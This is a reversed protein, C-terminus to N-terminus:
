LNAAPFREEFKAAMELATARYQGFEAHLAGFLGLAVPQCETADCWGLVRWLRRLAAVADAARNKKPSKQFRGVVRAVAARRMLGLATAVHHLVKFENLTGAFARFEIAGNAGAFAKRLNVMGRGCDEALISAQTASGARCMKALNGAVGDALQHAYHNLHRDTGTQAYIAWANQKAFHVLKRVFAAVQPTEATGIVSPVGVTVHLGCSANVKAGIARAFRVFERLAQIGAEGHLIPSVFECPAFGSEVQISGDREAKWYHGGFVPATVRSGDLATAHVVARGSHYSGITLGATAPVMTEIEVGFRIAEASVDAPKSATKM